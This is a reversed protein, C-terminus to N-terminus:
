ESKRNKKWQISTKLVKITCKHAKEEKKLKRSICAGEAARNEPTRWLDETWSISICMTCSQTLETSYEMQVKRATRHISKIIEPARETCQQEEENYRRWASTERRQLVGPAQAGKGTNGILFTKLCFAPSVAPCLLISQVKNTYILLNELLPKDLGSEKQSNTQYFAEVEWFTEM